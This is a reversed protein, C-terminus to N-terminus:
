VRRELEFTLDGVKVRWLKKDLAFKTNPMCAYRILGRTKLPLMILDIDDKLTLYPTPAMVIIYLLITVQYKAHM